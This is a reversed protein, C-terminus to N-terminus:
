LLLALFSGNFLLNTAVWPQWASYATQMTNIKDRIPAAQSGCITRQVTCHLSMGDGLICCNKWFRQMGLGLDWLQVSYFTLLAVSVCFKKIESSLYTTNDLSVNWWMELLPTLHTSHVKFGWPASEDFPITNLHAWHFKRKRNCLGHFVEPLPSKREGTLATQKSECVLITFAEEQLPSDEIYVIWSSHLPILLSGQTHLTGFETHETKPIYKHKGTQTLIFM